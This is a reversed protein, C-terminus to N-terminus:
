EYVYINFLLLLFIIFRDDSFRFAPHKYISRARRYNNQLYEHLLKLSISINLGNSAFFM